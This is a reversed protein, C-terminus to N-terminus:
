FCISIWILLASSYTKLKSGNVCKLISRLDKWSKRHIMELLENKKKFLEASEDQGIVLGCIYKLMLHLSAIILALLWKKFIKAKKM